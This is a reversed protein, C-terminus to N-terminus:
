EDNMMRKAARAWRTVRRESEPKRADAIDAHKRLLPAAQERLFRDSGQWLVYNVRLRDRAFLLLDEASRQPEATGRPRLAWQQISAALPVRGSLGAARDYLGALLDRPDLYLYNCCIGVGGQVACDTVDAYADKRNTNLWDLAQLVTTRPFAGALWQVQLKAATVAWDPPPPVVGAQARVDDVDAALLVSPMVVAELWPRGDFRRGLASVLRRMREQVAPHWYVPVTAQEAARSRYVGGGYASGRLYVPATRGIRVILHRRLRAAAQLDAAMKSFDYAGKVPELEAWDYSVVFGSFLPDMAAPRKAMDGVPGRKCDVYHGPNWASPRDLLQQTAPVALGAVGAVAVTAAAYCVAVKLKAWRMMRLVRDSVAAAAGGASAGTLAGWTATHVSDALGAPIAEATKSTLAMVLLGGSIKVGMAGLRERLKQVGYNVRAWATKETIGCDRAIESPSKGLLYRAIVAERSKPSLADIAKDLLPQLFAWTTEVEQRLAGVIETRGVAMDERRKRRGEARQMHGCVLSVTKYLWSGLSVKRGLKGAKRALVIFTSQVADEAGHHDGLRRYATSYVFGSYREVLEKFAQESGDKVFRSLLREDDPNM